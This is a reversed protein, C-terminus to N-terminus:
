TDDYVFAPLLHISFEKKNTGKPIPDVPYVIHLYVLHYKLITLAQNMLSLLIWLCFIHIVRDPTKTLIKIIKLTKASASSFFQKEDHFHPFPFFILSLKGILSPCSASPCLSPWHAVSFDQRFWQLSRALLSAISSFDLHIYTLWITTCTTWSGNKTTSCIIQYTRRM